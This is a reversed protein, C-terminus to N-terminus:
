RYLYRTAGGMMVIRVTSYGSYSSTSSQSPSSGNYEFISVMSKCATTMENEIHM